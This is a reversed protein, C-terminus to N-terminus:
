TIEELRARMFHLARKEKRSVQVQSIGLREGVQAQTCEEFYRLRIITQEEESLGQILSSVTMRNLINDYEETPDGSLKGVLRDLLYVPSSDSDGVTKYFSEPTQGSEFALALDQVTVDLKAAIESLQPERGSETAMSIQLARAKNYLEKLSRSVKVPGDDRLFRKIEGIILPVAYTSFCVDYRIDFNRIAKVLGISGIQILDEREVGRNQFRKVISLVLGFNEEVIRSTAIGDGAAAKELLERLEINKGFAM